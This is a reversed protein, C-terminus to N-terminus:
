FEKATVRLEFCRRRGIRRVDNGPRGALMNRFYLLCQYLEVPREDRVVLQRGLTHRGFPNARPLPEPTHPVGTSPVLAQAAAASAAVPQGSQSM